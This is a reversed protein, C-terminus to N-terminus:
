CRTHKSLVWFLLGVGTGSMFVVMVFIFVPPLIVALVSLFLAGAGLLMCDYLTLERIMSGIVSGLHKIHELSSTRAPTQIVSALIVCTVAVAILAGYIVESGRGTFALYSSALLSLAGTACLFFKKM